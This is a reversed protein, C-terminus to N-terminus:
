CNIPCPCAGPDCQIVHIPRVWEVQKFSSAFSPSVASGILVAAVLWQALFRKFNYM